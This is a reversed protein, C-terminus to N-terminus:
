IPMCTLDNVSLILRVNMARVAGAMWWPTEAQVDPMTLTGGTNPGPPPVCHFHSALMMLCTALLAHVSTNLGRLGSYQEEEGSTRGSIISLIQLMIWPIIWEDPVYGAIACGWLSWPLKPSSISSQIGSFSISCGSLETLRRLLNTAVVSALMHNEATRGIPPDAMMLLWWCTGELLILLLLFSMVLMVLMVLNPFIPHTSPLGITSPTIDSAPWSDHWHYSSRNGKHAIEDETRDIYWLLQVHFLVSTNSVDVKWHTFDHDRHHTVEVGFTASCPVSCDQMLMNLKMFWMQRAVIM